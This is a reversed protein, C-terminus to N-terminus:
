LKQSYFDPEVSEDIQKDESKHQDPPREQDIDLVESNQDNERSRKSESAAVDEPCAKEASGYDKLPSSEKVFSLAHCESNLSDINKTSRKSAVMSGQNNDAAEIEDDAEDANRDSKESLVLEDM